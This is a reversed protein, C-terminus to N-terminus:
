HKFSCPLQTSKAANHKLHLDEAKSFLSREASCSMAPIVALIKCLHFFTPLIVNLKKESKFQALAIPTKKTEYASQSLFNSFVAKEVQILDNNLEYFNGVKDESDESPKNSLVVDGLACLIDQNDVTFREKIEGIVIDLAVFYTNM